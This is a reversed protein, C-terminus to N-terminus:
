TRNFTAKWLAVEKEGDTHDCPWKVCGSSCHPPHEPGFGHKQCGGCAHHAIIDPYLGDNGFFKRIAAEYKTRVVEHDIVGDHALTAAFSMNSPRYTLSCARNWRLGIHGPPDLPWARAFDREALADLIAVEVGNWDGGYTLPRLIINELMEEAKRVLAARPVREDLLVRAYCVKEIADEVAKEWGHEALYHGGDRHIIALLNGLLYEHNVM